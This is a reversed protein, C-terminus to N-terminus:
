KKSFPNLKSGSKKKTTDEDPTVPVEEIGSGAVAATDTYGPKVDIYSDQRLMNLYDRLAPRIKEDYLLNMIESEVKDEPQLGAAYHQRVQLIMFGTKVQMVDTVQDKNLKFAAAELEPSLQGREFTGLDGGQLQTSGESYRKALEGFDEGAKVRDLLDQAKKKLAPLDAESKGETNIFIERLFVQEPRVFENKHEEYYKLVETHDLIIRGGVERRIVEQQLIQNTVNSKFDQYDVGSEEVRKELEEMSALKNDQRIQDLRKVVETDVSVGLDKGRQVLLSTDILDRLMDKEQATMRQQLQVPTCTPCAQRLEDAMQARSRDLDGRTIADSNVRAVVEELIKGKSQAAAGSTYLLCVGLLFLNKSMASM